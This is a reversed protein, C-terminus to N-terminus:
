RREEGDHLLQRLRAQEDPALADGRGSAARRARRLVGALVLVGGLLMLVPATWLLVTKPELRPEYLVYEGYREVMFDIIESDSRGEHLLRQLEHRLDAAIPANSDALNQNQCKPCRLERTFELYRVRQEESDFQYPDVAANVGLAVLLLLPLLLRSM